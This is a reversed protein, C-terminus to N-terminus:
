SWGDRTWVLLREGIIAFEDFASERLAEDLQKWRSLREPEILGIFSGVSSGFGFLLLHLVQLTAPRRFRLKSALISLLEEESTGVGGFSHNWDWELYAGAVRLDIRALYRRLIEPHNDGIHIVTWAKSLESRVQQIQRHVAEVFQDAERWSPVLLAKFGLLVSLRDLDRHDARYRVAEARIRAWEAEVQSRSYRHVGLQPQHYEIVEIGLALKGGRVLFDPAESPIVEAAIGRERLYAEVILREREKQKPRTM